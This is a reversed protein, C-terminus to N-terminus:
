VHLSLAGASRTGSRYAPLVIFLHDARVNAWTNVRGIIPLVISSLWIENKRFSMDPGLPM